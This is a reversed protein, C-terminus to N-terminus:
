EPLTMFTTNQLTLSFFGTFGNDMSLHGILKYKPKAKTGVNTIKADGMYNGSAFFVKGDPYVVGSMSKFTSGGSQNPWLKLIGYFSSVSSPFKIPSVDGPTRTATIILQMKNKWSHQSEWGNTDNPLSPDNVYANFGEIKEGKDTGFVYGTLTSAPAIGNLFMMLVFSVALIMSRKKSKKM